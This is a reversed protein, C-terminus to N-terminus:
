FQKWLTVEGRVEEISGILDNIYFKASEIIKEIDTDERLFFPILYQLYM